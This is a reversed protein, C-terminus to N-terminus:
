KGNHLGYGTAKQCDYGGADISSVTVVASSYVFEQYPNGNEDFPQGPITGNASTRKLFSKLVEIDCYISQSTRSYENSGSDIVAAIELKVPTTGDNDLFSVDM